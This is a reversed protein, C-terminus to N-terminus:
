EESSSCEGYCWWSDTSVSVARVQARKSRERGRYRDKGRRVQGNVQRDEETIATKRDKMCGVLFVIYKDIKKDEARKKKLIEGIRKM